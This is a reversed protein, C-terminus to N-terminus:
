ARVAAREQQLIRVAGRAVELENADLHMSDPAYRVREYLSALTFWASRHAPASEGLTSATRGHTWWEEARQPSGAKALFHFAAVVDFEGALNVPPLEGKARSLSSKRQNLGYVLAVIAVLLILLSLPFTSPSAVGASGSKSAASSVSPASTSSSAGTAWENLTRTASAFFGTPKDSKGGSSGSNQGISTGGSTVGTSKLASASPKPNSLGSTSNGAPQNKSQNSKKPSAEAMKKKQDLLDQSVGEIAQLVSKEFSAGLSPSSSSRSDSRGTPSSQTAVDRESQRIVDALTKKLGHRDLTEVMSPTVFGKLSNSLASNSKPLGALVSPERPLQSMLEKVSPLQSPDQAVSGLFEKLSPLQQSSEQAPTYRPAYGPGAAQRMSDLWQRPDSGSTPQAEGHQRQEEYQTDSQEAATPQRQLSNGLRQNGQPLKDQAADIAQRLGLKEALRQVEELSMSNGQNVSPEDPGLRSVGANSSSPLGNGLSQPPLESAAQSSRPGRNPAVESAPNKATPKQPSPTPSARNELNALSPSEMRRLPDSANAAPLGNPDESRESAGANGSQNMASSAPSTQRQRDAAQQPAAQPPLLGTPGRSGAPLQRDEAFRKLLDQVQPNEAIDPSSLFDRLSSVDPPQSASESTAAPNLANAERNKNDQNQMYRQGLQRLLNVDEPSLDKLMQSADFGPTQDNPQQPLTGQSPRAAAPSSAPGNDPTASDAASALNQLRQMMRYQLLVDDAGAQPLRLKRQLEQGTAVGRGLLLCTSALLAVTLKTTERRRCFM